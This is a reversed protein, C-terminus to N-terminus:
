TAEDAVTDDLVVEDDDLSGAGTDLLTDDGEALGEDVVGGALGELLDRELPDRGGRGETM